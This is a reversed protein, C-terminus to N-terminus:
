VLIQADTPLEVVETNFYKIHYQDNAFSNDSAVYIRKGQWFVSIEFTFANNEVFDIMNQNNVYILVSTTSNTAFIDFIQKRIVTALIENTMIYGKGGCAKCPKSLTQKMENRYKKRTIEVLGLSTMSVVTTRVRDRKVEESLLEMLKAKHEDQIMDIFDVIIIGGINRLRLQSAIAKAAICNTKFVTEELSTEGVYSGTNVDIVTLAETHEIILYAGNDLDVRSDLIRLAQGTVGYFNFLDVNDKKYMELIDSSFGYDHMLDQMKKYTEVDDVIIKEVFKGVLDRVVRELILGESWIVSKAPVTESYALIRQFRRQLRRTEALIDSESAQQCATRIIYGGNKEELNEIFNTLRLRESEETIKRSVGIYNVYPMYVVFRGALSLNPTLRAGKLGIETKAIQVLIEDGIKADLAKNMFIEQSESLDQGDIYTDTLYLYGNKRRGINVFAAQMGVLVQEVRGKCINGIISGDKESESNFEILKGDKLLAVAHTGGRTSIYVEKVM